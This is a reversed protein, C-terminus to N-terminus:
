LANGSLEFDKLGRVTVRVGKTRVCVLGGYVCTNITRHWVRRWLRRRETEENDQPLLRGIAELLELQAAQFVDAREGYCVWANSRIVKKAVVAAIWQYREYLTAREGEPRVITDSFAVSAVGRKENKFKYRTDENRYCASCLGKRAITKLQGCNACEATKAPKSKQADLPLGRSHLAACQKSCCVVRSRRPRFEQRCAPCTKPEVSRM